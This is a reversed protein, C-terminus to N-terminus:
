FFNLRHLIERKGRTPDQCQPRACETDREKLTISIKCQFFLMSRDAYKFVHAEQIYKIM